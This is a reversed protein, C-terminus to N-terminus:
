GNWVSLGSITVTTLTSKRCLSIFRRCRIKKFVMGEDEIQARFDHICIDVCYVTYYEAKTANMNLSSLDRVYKKCTATYRAWKANNVTIVAEKTEADIFKVTLADSTNKLSFSADGTTNLVSNVANTITYSVSFSSNVGIHSCNESLAYSSVFSNNKDAYGETKIAGMENHLDTLIVNESEEQKRKFWESPKTKGTGFAQLILGALVIFVCIFAIGTLIWKVKDSKKHQQLESKM